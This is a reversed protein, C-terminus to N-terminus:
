VSPCFELKQENISNPNVQSKEGKKRFKSTLIKFEFMGSKQVNLDITKGLMPIKAGFFLFELPM